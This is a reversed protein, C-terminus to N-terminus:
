NMTFSAVKPDLMFLSFPTLRDNVCCWTVGNNKCGLTSGDNSCDTPITWCRSEEQKCCYVRGTTADHACADPPTCLWGSYHTPCQFNILNSTFAYDSLATAMQANSPNSKVRTTQARPSRKAHTEFISCGKSSLPLSSSFPL